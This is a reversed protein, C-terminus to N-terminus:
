QIVITGDFVIIDFVVNGADDVLGFVDILLDSTGPTFNTLFKLSGLVMALDGEVASATEGFFNMADADFFANCRITSQQQSNGVADTAGGAALDHGRKRDFLQSM